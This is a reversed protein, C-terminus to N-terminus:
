FAKVKKHIPTVIGTIPNININSLNLSKENVGFFNSRTIDRDYVKKGADAQSYGRPHNPAPLPPKDHNKIIMTPLNEFSRQQSQKMKTITNNLSSSELGFELNRGMLREKNRMDLQHSLNMIENARTMQKTPTMDTSKFHHPTGNSALRPQADKRQSRAYFDRLRNERKSSL